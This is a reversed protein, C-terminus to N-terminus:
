NRQDLYPSINKMLGQDINSLNM